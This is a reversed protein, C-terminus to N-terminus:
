SASQAPLRLLREMDDVIETWDKMAGTGVDGCALSKEMPLLVKVWPWEELADIHKATLPHKWMATNMAPAVLIMKRDTDDTAGEKGDGEQSQQPTEQTWERTRFGVKGETDWARVVSTLLNDCLGASTKALTNASLPAILLADAWRRLEIHLISAGRTWSPKWEDEDVHIGDVGPIDRLSEITPQEKARGSLFHAASKTLVVRTSLQSSHGSLAHLMNPLKITAVSGSCALLLHRKGDRHNEARFTNSLSKAAPEATSPTPESTPDLSLGFVQRLTSTALDEGRSIQDKLAKSMDSAM